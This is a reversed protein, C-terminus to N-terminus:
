GMSGAGGNLIMVCKLARKGVRDGYGKVGNANLFRGIDMKFIRLSQAEVTGQAQSNWLGV